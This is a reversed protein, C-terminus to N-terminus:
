PVFVKKKNVIYIGRSLNNVDDGVYQGSVSVVKTYVANEVPITTTAMPSGQLVLNMQPHIAPNTNEKSALSVAEATTALAHVKFSVENGSYTQMFPTVDFRYTIAQISDYVSAVRGYVSKWADNATRLTGNLTNEQWQNDEVASIMLLPKGAGATVTLEVEARQLGYSMLDPSLAFRVFAEKRNSEARTYHVLM